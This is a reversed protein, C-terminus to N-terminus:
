CYSNFFLGSYASTMYPNSFAPKTYNPYTIIKKDVFEMPNLSIAAFTRSLSAGFSPKGEFLSSLDQDMAAQEMLFHDTHMYGDDDFTIGASELQNKYPSVAAGLISKMRGASPNNRAENSVIKIFHNYQNALKDIGRTIKLTDPIFRVCVPEDSKAHLSLSLGQNILVQNSGASQLTGNVSFSANVPRQTVHNLDYYAIIGTDGSYSIDSLEFMLADTGTREGTSELNLAVTNKSSDYDLVAKIGLDSQNVFERMRTLINLNTENEGVPFKFEYRRNGSLLRFTYNGSQAGVSNAFLPYGSNRQPKALQNVQVYLDEPFSDPSDKLLEATLSPEDAQAKQFRLCSDPERQEMSEFAQHLKMSAAKLTLAFDQTRDTLKILYLPSDKSVKRIQNYIARLESAKHASPKIGSTSLNASVLHNYTSLEMM